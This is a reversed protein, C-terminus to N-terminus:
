AGAIFATDLRIKNAEIRQLVRAYTRHRMWKPRLPPIKDPGYYEAGLRRHLSALRRHARDLPGGRQVQYGLRYCHRCAFLRGAGYIQAVKRGCYVGDASVNCLFWPREGGFRCTTWCIPVQQHVTQWDDAGVKACYDLIIAHRDGKIRISATTKGAYSWELKGSRPRSLFGARALRMVDLRRAGEVTGAGKWNNDGRPM